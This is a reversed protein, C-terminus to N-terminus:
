PEPIILRNYALKAMLKNRIQADSKIPIPKMPVIPTHKLSMDEGCKTIISM